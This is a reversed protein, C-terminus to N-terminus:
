KCFEVILDDTINGHNNYSNKLKIDTDLLLCFLNFINLKSIQNLSFKLQNLAYPSISLSERIKSDDINKNTMDIIISCQMLKRYLLSVLAIADSSELIVNKAMRISKKLDKYIISDVLEFITDTRIDSVVNSIDKLTINNNKTYLDIKKIENNMKYLDFGVMDILYEIANDEIVKDYKKINDIIWEKMEKYKLKYCSVTCATESLKTFFQTTKKLSIQESTTSIFIISDNPNDLWKKIINKSKVDSKDINHFIILRFSNMMPTTNLEIGIESNSTDKGYYELFDFDIDYLDKYKNKILNVSEDKLFNEDGNFLFIKDKSKKLSKIFRKYSIVM